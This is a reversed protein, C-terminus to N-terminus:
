RGYVGKDSEPRVTTDIDGCGPNRCWYVTSSVSPVSRGSDAHLNGVARFVRTASGAPTRFEYLEDSRRRKRLAIVITAGARRVYSQETDIVGKPKHM